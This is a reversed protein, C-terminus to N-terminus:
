AAQIVLDLVDRVLLGGSKDRRQVLSADLGDGNAVEPINALADGVPMLGVLFEVLHGTAQDAMHERVLRLAPPHANHELVLV